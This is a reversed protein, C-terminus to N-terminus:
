GVPFQNLRVIFVDRELVHQRGAMNATRVRRVTFPDRHERDRENDEKDDNDLAPDVHRQERVEDTKREAACGRQWHRRYIRQRSKHKNTCQMEEFLKSDSTIDIFLFHSQEHTEEVEHRLHSAQQIFEKSLILQHISALGGQM